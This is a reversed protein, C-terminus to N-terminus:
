GVDILYGLIALGDGSGVNLASNLGGYETKYHVFHVESFYRWGNLTHESASGFSDAGLHFELQALTYESKLYGGDIRFVYNKYFDWKLEDTTDHNMLWSDHSM